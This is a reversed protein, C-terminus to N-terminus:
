NNLNIELFNRLINSMLQFDIVCVIIKNDIVYKDFFKCLM